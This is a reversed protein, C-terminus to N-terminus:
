NPKSINRVDLKRVMTQPGTGGDGSVNAIYRIRFPMGLSASLTVAPYRLRALTTNRKSGIM